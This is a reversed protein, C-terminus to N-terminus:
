KFNFQVWVCFVHLMRSIPVNRLGLLHVCMAIELFFFVWLLSKTFAFIIWWSDFSTHLLLFEKSIFHVKIFFCALFVVLVLSSKRNALWFSHTINFRYSNFILSAQRVVSGWGEGYCFYSQSHVLSNLNSLSNSILSFESKWCFVVFLILCGLLLFSLPHDGYLGM